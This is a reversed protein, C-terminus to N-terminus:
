CTLLKIVGQLGETVCVQHSQEKLSPLWKDQKVGLRLWECWGAMRITQMRHGLWLVCDKVCCFILSILEWWIDKHRTDM